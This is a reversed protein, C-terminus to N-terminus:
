KCTSRQSDNWAEVCSGQPRCVSVQFHNLTCVGPVAAMMAITRDLIYLSWWLNIREAIHFDDVPPALMGWDHSAIAEPEAIQDLNCAAAVAVVALVSHVDDPVGLRQVFPLFTTYIGSITSM